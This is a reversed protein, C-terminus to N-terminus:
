GSTGVGADAAMTALEDVVDNWHDGSHGKVWRFSVPVDPALALELMPEWLDRNAVPKRAANKWGRRLWGEWWRDTFAKVVYISDSVVDIGAPRGATLARLAELAATIEM